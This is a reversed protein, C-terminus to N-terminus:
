DQQSIGIIKQCIRVGTMANSAWYEAGVQKCVNEDVQGGIIYALPAQSGDIEKKLLYITEQM